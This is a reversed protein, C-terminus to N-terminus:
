ARDERHLRDKVVSEEVLIAERGDISNDYVRWHDLDPKIQDFTARNRSGSDADSQARILDPDVYRGGLGHGQRYKEHGEQHRAEARRVSVEVPIDVFVGEVQGYGASRLESLRQRTSVLSSMTIDWIINKGDAYARLALQKAIYSSEEHVLDSAEMPTLGPLEPVMGRAAMLEKIEDPNVTLYKTQDIRAVTTLVTTKGSGPLGGALIATGECPVSDAKDYLEDIIEDHLVARDATWVKRSTDATYQYDTALHSDRADALTASVESTREAHDADTLPRHRDATRHADPYRPSSPHGEPLRELKRELATAVAPRKADDIESLDPNDVRGVPRTTGDQDVAGSLYHRYGWVM